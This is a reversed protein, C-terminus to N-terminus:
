EPIAAVVITNNHYGDLRKETRAVEGYSVFGAIPVDPFVSRVEALEDKHRDGLVLSRCVCSFVLVGAAKGNGLQARAEEAAVRAASLIQDHNGRVISVTSGEPVEGSFRLAGNELLGIPARVRVLDDFLLVGLENEVLLQLPNEADYEFGMEAAYERYLDFAPRGDIQHVVSGEARTVAMKRWTPRVGHALGIGFPRRTVIRASAIAHISLRQNVGVATKEFDREDGAGAGLISAGGTGLAAAVVKELVPSLGDGFLLYTVARGRGDIPDRLGLKEALASVSGNPVAFALQHQELGSLLMVVVGGHTVGFESMEGATSCGIWEIHPLIERAKEFATSASFKPSVFLLGVQADNPGVRAAAQAVAHTVATEVDPATSAGSGCVTKPQSRVRVSSLQSVLEERERARGGRSVVIELKPVIPWRDVSFRGGPLNPEMIAVIECALTSAVMPVRQRKPMCFTAKRPKSRAAQAAGGVECGGLVGGDLPSAGGRVVVVGGSIAVVGGAGLLTGGTSSAGAPM